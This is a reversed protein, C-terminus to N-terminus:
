FEKKWGYGNRSFGIIFDDSYQYLMSYTLRGYIGKRFLPDDRYIACARKGAMMGSIIM